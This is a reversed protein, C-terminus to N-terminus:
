MFFCPMKEEEASQANAFPLLSNEEETSQANAFHLLLLSLPLLLLSLTKRKLLNRM